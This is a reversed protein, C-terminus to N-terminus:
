VCQNTPLTLHTYSVAEDPVTPDFDEGAADVPGPRDYIGYSSAMKHGTDEFLAMRVAQRLLSKKIRKM